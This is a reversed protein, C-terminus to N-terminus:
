FVKALIEGGLHQKRADHDTMVGKPTSVIAIGLGNYFKPLDKIKSYVRRSPKSVRIMEKIVGQNDFYKLTIEIEDFGKSNKSVSYDKIYGQEKLVNLVSLRLKSSPSIVKDLKAQQGNKIRALMDGLPDIIAM